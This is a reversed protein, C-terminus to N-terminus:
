HELCKIFWSTDQELKPNGVFKGRVYSLVCDVISSHFEFVFNNSHTIIHPFYMSKFLSQLFQRRNIEVYRILPFYPNFHHHIREPYSRGASDPVFSVSLFTTHAYWTINRYLNSALVCGAREQSINSYSRPFLELVKSIIFIVPSILFQIM